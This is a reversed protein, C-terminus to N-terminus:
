DRRPIEMGRQTAPRVLGRDVWAMVNPFSSYELV